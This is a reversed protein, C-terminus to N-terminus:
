EHRAVALLRLRSVAGAATGMGRPPRQRPGVGPCGASRRQPSWTSPSCPGRCSARDGGSAAWGTAGYLWRANRLAPLDFRVGAVARDTSLPSVAIRYFFQGDFGKDVSQVTLSGPAARADSWPPAAHVLLSPDGDDRILLAGVFLVALLGCVVAVFAPRDPLRRVARSLGAMDASRVTRRM